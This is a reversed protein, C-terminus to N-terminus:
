RIGGLKDAVWKIMVGVRIADLETDYDQRKYMQLFMDIIKKDRSGREKMAECKGRCIDKNVCGDCDM